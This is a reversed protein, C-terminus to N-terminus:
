KGKKTQDTFLSKTDRSVERRTDDEAVVTLSAAPKFAYRATWKKGEPMKDIQAPSKLKPDTMAKDGFKEKLPEEAEDKWARNSKGQVLKRGKIKKGAQLRSFATKGAAEAVIKAVDFLNLFRAVQLDSLEGAGGEQSAISMLKELEDMDDTIQPCSRSRAPCFRCHTGSATDKSTEALYMAPLLVEDLWVELDAPTTAWYRLPGDSHFGRPQAIHIVIKDVANWMDMKELVGVAYYMGQPNNAAEVIIGEGHKYDWVHLVRNLKDFYVFDSRGYFFPHISPCHFGYEVWADVGEKASPYMNRLEAIYINVAQAMAADVYTDAYMHFGVYQWTQDGTRLCLEGLMHAATGLEAFYSEEDYVGSSLGVSGPCKMWRSAGSAGLPSHEPLEDRLELLDVRSPNEPLDTM